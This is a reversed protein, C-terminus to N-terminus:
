QNAGLEIFLVKNSYFRWIFPLDYSELLKSVAYRMDGDIAIPAKIVWDITNGNKKVDWIVTINENRAWKTIVESLREGEEASFNTYATVTNAFFLITLLLAKIYNM